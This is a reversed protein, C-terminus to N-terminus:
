GDTPDKVQPMAFRGGSRNFKKMAAESVPLFYSVPESVSPDIWYGWAVSSISVTKGSGSRKGKKRKFVTAGIRAGAFPDTRVSDIRLEHTADSFVAGVEPLGAVTM